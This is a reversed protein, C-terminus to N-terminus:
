DFYIKQPNVYYLFKKRHISFLKINVFTAKSSNVLVILLRFFIVKENISIPIKKKRNLNLNFKLEKESQVISSDNM